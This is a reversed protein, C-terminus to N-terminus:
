SACQCPWAVDNATGIFNIGLGLARKVCIISAAKAVGRSYALWSGLFIESVRLGSSGPQRYQM